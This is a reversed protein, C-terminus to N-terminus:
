QEADGRAALQRCAQKHVPWDARCCAESCYWVARCGTCKRTQWAQDGNSRNAMGLLLPVNACGLHACRRSSLVECRALAQENAAPSGPATHRQARPQLQPLMASAIALVQQTNDDRWGQLGLREVAQLLQRQQAPPLSRSDAVAQKAVVRAASKAALGTLGLEEKVLRAAAALLAGGSAPAVGLPPMTVLERLALLLARHAGDVVTHVQEANGAAPQSAWTLSANLAESAVLHCGTRLKFVDVMGWVM